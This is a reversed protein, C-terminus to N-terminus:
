PASDRPKASCICVSREAPYREYPWPRLLLALWVVATSSVGHWDSSMLHDTGSTTRCM